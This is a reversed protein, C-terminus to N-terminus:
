KGLYKFNLFQNYNEGWLLFGKINEYIRQYIELIELKVKMYFVNMLKMKFIEM